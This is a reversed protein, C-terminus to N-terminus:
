SILFHFMVPVALYLAKALVLCFFMLILLMTLAAAMTAAGHFGDFGAAFSAAMVLVVIPILIQAIVLTRGDLVPGM